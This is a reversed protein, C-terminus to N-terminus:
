KGKITITGLSDFVKIKATSNKKFTIELIHDAISKKSNKQDSKKIWTGIIENSVKENNDSSKPKFSISTLIIITLTLLKLKKM